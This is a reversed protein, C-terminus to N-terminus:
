TYVPETKLSKQHGETSLARIRNQREFFHSLFKDRSPDYPKMPLNVCRLDYNKIPRIAPLSRSPRIQPLHLSMSQKSIEKESAKM